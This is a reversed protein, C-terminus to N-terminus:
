FCVPPTVCTPVLPTTQQQKQQQCFNESNRINYQKGGSFFLIRYNKNKNINTSKVDLKILISKFYFTGNFIKFFNVFKYILYLM